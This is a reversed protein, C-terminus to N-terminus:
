PGQWDIQAVVNRRRMHVQSAVDDGYQQLNHTLCYSCCGFAMRYYENIPSLVKLISPLRPLFYNNLLHLYNEANVKPEEFWYPGMVKNVSIAAWDCVTESDGMEERYKHPNETRWIRVNHKGVKEDLYFVSEDSFIIHNLFSFEPQINKPCWNIFWNRAAYDVNELQQVMQIKNPPIQLRYRLVRQVSIQLITLVRDIM